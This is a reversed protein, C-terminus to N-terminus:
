REKQALAARARLAAACLALAPSAARVSVLVRLHGDKIDAVWQHRTKGTWRYDHLNFYTREPVLTVAADLSTTYAFSTDQMDMAGFVVAYIAADLLGHPEERECRKALQLLVEHSVTVPSLGDTM